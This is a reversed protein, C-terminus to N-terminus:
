RMGKTTSPPDTKREFYLRYATKGMAIRPLGWIASDAWRPGLEATKDCNVRRQGRHRATAFGGLVPCVPHGM